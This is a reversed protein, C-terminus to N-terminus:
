LPAPCRGLVLPPFLGFVIILLYLGVSVLGWWGMDRARSSWTPEHPGGATRRWARYTFVGAVITAAAAAVGVLFSWVDVSIGFVEGGRAGPACGLEYLLDSVLLQAFWAAPPVLIGAWLATSRASRRAEETRSTTDM